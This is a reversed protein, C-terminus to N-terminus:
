TRMADCGRMICVCRDMWPEMCSVVVYTRTQGRRVRRACWGALRRACLGCIDDARWLSRWPWPAPAAVMGKGTCWRSTQVVVWGSMYM